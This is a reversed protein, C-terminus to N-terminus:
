CIVLVARFSKSPAAKVPNTTPVDTAADAAGLGASSVLVVLTAFCQQAPLFAQLPCPPQPALLPLFEQLPVPPQLVLVLQLPFGQVSSEPLYACVQSAHAPPTATPGASAQSRPLERFVEM